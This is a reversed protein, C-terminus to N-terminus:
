RPFKQRQVEGEWVKFKRSKTLQFTTSRTKKTKRFASSKTKSKKFASQKGKSKAGPKLQTKHEKPVTYISDGKEFM